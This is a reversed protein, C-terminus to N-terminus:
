LSAGSTHNHYTLATWVAGGHTVIVTVQEQGRARGLGLGASREVRNMHRIDGAVIEINSLKWLM